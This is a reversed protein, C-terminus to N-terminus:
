LKSEYQNKVVQSIFTALGRGAQALAKMHEINAAGASAYTYRYAAGGGFTVIIADEEVEYNTVASSGNLNAYEPM